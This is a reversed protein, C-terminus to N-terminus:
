PSRIASEGKSRNQMVTWFRLFHTAMRKPMSSEEPTNTRNETGFLPDDDLAKVKAFARYADFGAFGVRNDTPICVAQIDANLTLGTTSAPKFDLPRPSNLPFRFPPRPTRSAPTMGVWVPSM